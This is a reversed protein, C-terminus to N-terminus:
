PETISTAEPYADVLALVVAEPARNQIALHLPLMEGGDKTKVGDLFAELLAKVAILPAHKILARHLPIQGLKDTAQALVNGKKKDPSQGEALLPLWEELTKKEKVHPLVGAPVMSPEFPQPQESTVEFTARLLTNM